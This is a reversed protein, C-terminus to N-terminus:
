IPIIVDILLRRTAIEEFQTMVLAASNPINAELPSYRRASRSKIAEYAIDSSTPANPATAIQVANYRNNTKPWGSAKRKKGGRDAASSKSAVTPLKAM